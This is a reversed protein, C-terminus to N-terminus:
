AFFSTDKKEERRRRNVLLAVLQSLTRRKLARIASERESAQSPSVYIPPTSTIPFMPLHSEDISAKPEYSDCQHSRSPTQYHCEICLVSVSLFRKEKRRKKEGRENDDGLQLFKNCYLLKETNKIIDYSFVNILDYYIFLYTSLM